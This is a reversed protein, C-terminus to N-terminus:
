FIKGKRIEKMLQQLTEGKVFYRIGNGNGRRIAKFTKNGNEVDNRILRRLTDYSRIWKFINLNFIEKASYYRDQYIKM